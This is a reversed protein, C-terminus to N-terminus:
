LKSGRRYSYAKRRLCAHNFIHLCFTDYRAFCESNPDFFNLSFKGSFQEFLILIVIVTLLNEFIKRPLM